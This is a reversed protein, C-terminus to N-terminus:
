ATYKREKIKMPMGGAPIPVFDMVQYAQEGMLPLSPSGPPYAAEFDFRRCLVVLALKIEILALGQGICSRPGKEFARWAGPPITGAPALFRDPVFNNPDDFLKPDRGFCTHVVWLKVM